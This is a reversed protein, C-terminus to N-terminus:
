PTSRGHLPPLDVPARTAISQKIALAVRLSVLGDALDVIPKSRTAVCDLFHRTQDLFLSNRDFNELRFIEPEPTNRKFLAVTLSPLDVLVRARDGLVETQRLPPSQLYDTHLQIPLTVGQWPVELLSTATDEVDVDLESHHGGVSYVRSPAGFISYLFDLEHIQTLVVGGGLEARAAYMSRYDEYPHWNPLYEGLVSRVALLNGLVGSHVIAALRQICPHFRLQYGVMAILQHSRVLELLEGTGDLSDSVPKELFLDCGARACEIAVPVHQRTPNAIFAADPREALASVLSAFSRINYVDEVNRDQEANLTPTVVHTLRRQRFALIEVSDGLLARLNRTHRQGIGGLGVILIKKM